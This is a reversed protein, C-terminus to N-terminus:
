YMISVYGKEGADGGFGLCNAAGGGCGGEGASRSCDGGSVISFGDVSGRGWTGGGHGPQSRLQYGGSGEPRTRGADKGVGGGGGAANIVQTGGLTVTTAGGASGAGAAGGGGGGGVDFAITNGASVPFFGARIEGWGGQGGGFIQPNSVDCVGAAGGGGGGSVEIYVRSVGAPILYTDSDAYRVFFSFKKNVQASLAAIGSGLPRATSEILAKLDFCDWGDATKMVFQGVECKPLVPVKTTDLTVGGSEGQKFPGGEPVEIPAVEVTCGAFAVALCWVGFGRM